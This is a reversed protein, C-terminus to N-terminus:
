AFDLSFEFFQLFFASVGTKAAAICCTRAFLLSVSKNKRNSEQPFHQLIIYSLQSLIVGMLFVFIMQVMPGDLSLGSTKRAM